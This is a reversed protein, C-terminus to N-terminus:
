RVLVRVPAQQGAIGREGGCAMGNRQDDAFEGRGGAIVRQHEDASVGGRNGHEAQLGFVVAEHDGVVPM